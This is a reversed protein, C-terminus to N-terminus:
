LTMQPVQQPITLQAEIAALVDATSVGPARERLTAQGNGFSIVAMETVLLDVARLSTIPLATVPRGGADTLTPHAM